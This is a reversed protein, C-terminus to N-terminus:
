VNGQQCVDWAPLRALTIRPLQNLDDFTQINDFGEGALMAAIALHQNFGHEFALWGNASLFNPSQAIILRIDDLGDEGSVLARNPEFRVDGQQLYESATEVYPPNTVILAFQNGTLASFWNSPLFRVQKLQNAVANAKALLVADPNVDVGTVQWDPKESALALAIAGTGTGLDLVHADNSLPLGLAIEVLLETEPRPILTVPSVQLRQTWFDRYGLLYAVPHGTKRKAVMQQYQSLVEPGLTKDPWTLLYVQECQLAHCLLLRSDLAPSDSLELQDKAWALAQEITLIM